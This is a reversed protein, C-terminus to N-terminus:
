THSTLVVLADLPNEVIPPSVVEVYEGPAKVCSVHYLRLVTEVTFPTFQVLAVVEAM